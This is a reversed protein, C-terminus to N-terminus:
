AFQGNVRRPKGLARHHAYTAVRLAAAAICRDSEDTPILKMRAGPAFALEADEFLSRLQPRRARYHHYYLWTRLSPPCLRMLLPKKM